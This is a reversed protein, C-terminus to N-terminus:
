LKRELANFFATLTQRLLFLVKRFLEMYTAVDPLFNDYNGSKKRFIRLYLFARFVYGITSGVALGVIGFSLLFILCVFFNFCWTIFSTKIFFRSELQGKSWSAIIRTSADAIIGIILIIMIPICLYFDSGLIFYVIGFAFFSNIVSVLTVSAIAYRQAQIATKSAEISGEKGFNTTLIATISNSVYFGAQAFSVGTVYVGLQSASTLYILLIVDFRNEFELLINMPHIQLGRWFLIKFRTFFKFVNGSSSNVRLFLFIYILGTMLTTLFYWIILYDLNEINIWFAVILFSILFLRSIISVRNVLYHYGLGRLCLSALLETVSFPILLNMVWFSILTIEQNHQFHLFIHLGGLGILSVLLISIILFPTYSVSRTGRKALRQLLADGLGFNSLNISMGVFTLITVYIGRGEAGFLKATLILVIFKLFVLTIKAIFGDYINRATESKNTQSM